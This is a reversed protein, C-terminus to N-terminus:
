NNGVCIYASNCLYVCLYLGPVSLSTLGSASIAHIFFISWVVNLYIALHCYIAFIYLILVRCWFFHVCFHQKNLVLRWVLKWCTGASSKQAESRTTCLLDVHVSVMKVDTFFVSHIFVTLLCCLKDFSCLCRRWLVWLACWLFLAILPQGHFPQSLIVGACKAISENV